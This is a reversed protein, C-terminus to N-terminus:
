ARPAEKIEGSQADIFTPADRIEDGRWLQSPDDKSPRGDDDPYFVGGRLPWKPVKVTVDPVIEVTEDNLKGVTVKFTVALTGGKGTDRVAAILEHLKESADTHASPLDLLVAAYDRPEPKKEAM